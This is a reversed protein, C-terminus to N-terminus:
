GLTGFSKLNKDLLKQQADAETGTANFLFGNNTNGMAFPIDSGGGARAFALRNTNGTWVNNGAGVGIGINSGIGYLGGAVM